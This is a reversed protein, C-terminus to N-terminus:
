GMGYLTQDRFSEGVSLWMSPFNGLKRCLTFVLSDCDLGRFSYVTETGTGHRLLYTIYLGVSQVDPVVASAHIPYEWYRTQQPIQPGSPTYSTHATVSYDACDSFVSELPIEEYQSHTGSYPSNNWM